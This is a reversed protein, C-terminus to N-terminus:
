RYWTHPNGTHASWNTSRKPSLRGTRTSLWEGTQQIAFAGEALADTEAASDVLWFQKWTAAASTALIRALCCQLARKVIVEHEDGGRDWGGLEAIPSDKAWLFWGQEGIHDRITEAYACMQWQSSGCESDLTESLVGTEIFRNALFTPAGRTLTLGAGLVFNLTTVAVLSLLVVAWLFRFDAMVRKRIRQALFMAAGLVAVSGLALAPNGNHVAVATAIIAAAALRDILRRSLMILAGALFIWAALIDPMVYGTFRAIGTTAVSAVIVLAAALARWRGAPLLTHSVRLLLFCSVLAQIVVITWLSPFVRSFQLLLSYGIARDPPVV